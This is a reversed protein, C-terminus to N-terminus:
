IGVDTVGSVVLGDTVPSNGEEGGESSVSPSACGGSVDSSPSSLVMEGSSSVVFPCYSGFLEM